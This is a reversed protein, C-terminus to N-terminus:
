MVPSKDGPIGPKALVILHVVEVGVCLRGGVCKGGGKEGGKVVTVGVVVVEQSLAQREEEKKQTNLAKEEDQNAKVGVTLGGLVGVVCKLKGDLLM